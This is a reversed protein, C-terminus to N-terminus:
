KSAGLHTYALAIVQFLNMAAQFLTSKESFNLPEESACSYDEPPADNSVAFNQDHYAENQLEIGDFGGNPIVLWTPAESSTPTNHGAKSVQQNSAIILSNTNSELISDIRSEYSFYREISEPSGDRREIRWVAYCGSSGGDQCGLNPQIMIVSDIVNNNYDRSVSNWADVFAMLYQHYILSDNDDLVNISQMSVPLYDQWRVTDLDLNLENLLRKFFRDLVQFFAHSNSESQWVIIDIERRLRLHVLLRSMIPAGKDLLKRMYVGGEHDSFNLWTNELGSSETINMPENFATIISPLELAMDELADSDNNIEEVSQPVFDNNDSIDSDKEREREQEEVRRRELEISFARADMRGSEAFINRMAEFDFSNSNERVRVYAWHEAPSPEGMWTQHNVLVITNTEAAERQISDAGYVVSLHAYLVGNEDLTPQYLTAIPQMADSPSIVLIRYSLGISKLFRFVEPIDDTTGWVSEEVLSVAHDSNRNPRAARVERSLSQTLSSMMWDGYHPWSYLWQGNEDFSGYMSNGVCEELYAYDSYARGFVSRIISNFFCHGDGVVPYYRMNPLTNQIFNRCESVSLVGHNNVIGSEPLKSPEPKPPPKAKRTAVRDNISGAFALGIENLRSQTINLKDKNQNSASTREVKAKHEQQAREYYDPSLENEPKSLWDLVKKAGEQLSDASVGEFLDDLEHAVHDMNSIERLVYQYNSQWNKYRAEADTNHIDNRADYDFIARHRLMERAIMALLFGWARLPNMCMTELHSLFGNASNMVHNNAPALQSKRISVMSDDLADGGFGVFFPAGDVMKYTGDDCRVLNPYNPDGIVRVNINSASGPNLPNGGECRLLMDVLADLIKEKEERDETLDELIYDAFKKKDFRPQLAYIAYKGNSNKEYLYTVPICDVGIRRMLWMYAMACAIVERAQQETECEKHMAKLVASYPFYLLRLVKSSVGIGLPRGVFPNQSLNPTYLRPSIDKLFARIKRRDKSAERMVKFEESSTIIESPSNFPAEGLNVWIELILPQGHMEVSLIRSFLIYLEDKGQARVFTVGGAGKIHQGITGSSNIRILVQPNAPSNMVLDSVSINIPSAGKKSWSWPANRKKHSM